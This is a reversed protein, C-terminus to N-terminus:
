SIRSTGTTAALAAAHFKLESKALPFGDPPTRARLARTRLM